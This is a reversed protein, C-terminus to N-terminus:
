HAQDVGDMTRFREGDCMVCPQLESPRQLHFHKACDCCIYDGSGAVEGALLVHYSAADLERKLTMLEVEAPDALDRVAELLQDEIASVDIELFSAVGHTVDNLLHSKNAM